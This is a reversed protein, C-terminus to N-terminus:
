KQKESTKQSSEDPKEPKSPADPKQPTEPAVKGSSRNTQSARRATEMKAETLKRHEERENHEREMKHRLAERVAADQNSKTRVEKYPARHPRHPDNTSDGALPSLVFLAMLMIGKMNKGNKRLSSLAAKGSSASRKEHENIQPKLVLSSRKSLDKSIESLKQILGSEKRIFTFLIKKRNDTQITVRWLPACCILWERIYEMLEMDFISVDNIQLLLTREPRDYDDWVYCQRKRVPIPNLNYRKSLWKGLSEWMTNWEEGTFAPEDPIARWLGSWETERLPGTKFKLQKRM